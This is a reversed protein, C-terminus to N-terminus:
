NSITGTFTSSGTNIDVAVQTGTVTLVGVNPIEETTAEFTGGTWTLIDEPDTFTQEITGNFEYETGEFEVTGTITGTFTEPSIVSTGAIAGTSGDTYTAVGVIVGASLPGEATGSITGSIPTIIDSDGTMSGMAVLTEHFIRGSRGGQGETRLTWGAHTIKANREAEDADIGFTGIPKKGFAEVGTEGNIINVTHKPASVAEDKNSWLPM